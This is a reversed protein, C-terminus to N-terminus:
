ASESSLQPRVQQGLVRQPTLGLARAFVADALRTPMLGLLALFMRSRFPVVYRAAPRRSRIAREMARTVVHAGAAMKDSQARIADAKAYVAAYASQDNRYRDVTGMTTDAFGTHIPGPEIVVVRVGFPRLEVRLSDSIAEVAHKSATYPGFFPFSVRGAVSSVNIVTGARRAQMAPVFARTVAVLGFVNTEFQHRLDGPDVETIPASLGYGANNILVDVAEGGTIDAVRARVAEISTPDTVDLKLAVLREGPADRELSALADPNRGTAIVRHGGAAFHLAAARGIGSTAGTILITQPTKM